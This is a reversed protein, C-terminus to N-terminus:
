STDVEMYSSSADGQKIGGYVVINDSQTAPPAAPHTGWSSSYIGFKFYPPTDDNYATGTHNWDVLKDGNRWMEVFGTPANYVWKTHYVFHEWVGVNVPGLNAEHYWQYTRNAKSINRRPDGRSQLVWANTSPDTHLEVMPNRNEEHQNPNGHVQFHVSDVNVSYGIPLLLSFGFWYESYKMMGTHAYESRYCGGKNPYISNNCWKVKFQTCNGEREAPCPIVTQSLHDNCVVAGEVCTTSVMFTKTCETHSTPEACRDHLSDLRDNVLLKASCRCTESIVSSLVAAHMVASTLWVTSRGGCVVM